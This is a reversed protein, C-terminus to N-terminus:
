TSKWVEREWREIGGDMCDFRSKNGKNTFEIGDCGDIEFANGFCVGGMSADVIRGDFM